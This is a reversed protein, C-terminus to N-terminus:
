PTPQPLHASGAQVPMTALPTKGSGPSAGLRGKQSAEGGVAEERCALGQCSAQGSRFGGILPSKIVIIYPAHSLAKQCLPFM